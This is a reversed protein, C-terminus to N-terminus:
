LGSLNLCERHLNVPLSLNLCERLTWYFNVPMLSHPVGEAFFFFYVANCTRYTSVLNIVSPTCEAICGMREMRVRACM